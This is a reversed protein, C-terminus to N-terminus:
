WFLLQQSSAAVIADLVSTSHRICMMGLCHKNLELYNYVHCFVGGFLGHFEVHEFLCCVLLRFFIDAAAFHCAFLDTQVYSSAFYSM